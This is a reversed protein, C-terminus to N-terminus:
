RAAANLRHAKPAANSHREVVTSRRSIKLQDPEFGLAEAVIPHATSSQGRLLDRVLQSKIKRSDAFAELSGHVIRLRARVEEPHLTTVSM